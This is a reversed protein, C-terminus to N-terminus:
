GIGGGGATTQGPYATQPRKFYGAINAGAQSGWDAGQMINAFTNPDPNLQQRFESSSGGGPSRVSNLIGLRQTAWSKNDQDAGRALGGSQFLRAIDSANMGYKQALLQQLQDNGAVKFGGIQMARQQGLGAATQFGTSRLNADTSATTRLAAENTLADAVGHRSGGFAGAANASGEGGVLAIQRQRDIDANTNKIVSNTYPDMFEKIDSAGFDGYDAGGITGRLADNDAQGFGLSNGVLGMAQKQQPSLQAIYQRPDMGLRNAEQWVRESMQNQDTSGRLNQANQDIQGQTIRPDVKQTKPKSLIGGAIGGVASGVGVWVGTM